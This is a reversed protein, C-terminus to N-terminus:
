DMQKFSIIQHLSVKDLKWEAVKKLKKIKSRTFDSVPVRIEEDFSLLESKSDKTKWYSSKRTMYETGKRSVSRPETTYTPKPPIDFNVRRESRKGFSSAGKEEAQDLNAHNPEMFALTQDSSRRHHQPEDQNSHAISPRNRVVLHTQAMQQTEDNELARLGAFTISDREDSDSTTISVDLIGGEHTEYPEVSARRYNSTMTNLKALDSSHQYSDTGTLNDQMIVSNEKKELSLDQAAKLEPPKGQGGSELYDETRNQSLPAANMTATPEVGPALEAACPRLNATTNPRMRSTQTENEPTSLSSRDENKTLSCELQQNASHANSKNHITQLATHLDYIAGEKEILSRFARLGDVQSTLQKMLNRIEEAADEL